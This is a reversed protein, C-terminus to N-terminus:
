GLVEQRVIASDPHVLCRGERDEAFLYIQEPSLTLRVLDQPAIATDEALLVSVYGSADDGSVAADASRIFLVTERGLREVVHVEGALGDTGKSLRVAEPRIGVCVRDGSQLSAAASTRLVLSDAGRGLDVTVNDAAVDKVRAALFNMKPSGLFGAVFRNIPHTYLDMPSGIQEINGGQMVVIKTAMTMAETQDHTVYVMTSGLESHLRSLEVRMQSRLAADLNSLPEDFLFIEPSRTIARGIAARQKQGGSLEKPRKDLQDEMRLIRAARQVAADVEAKPRHRLSLSFAMNERVTMHPYLAYNQFVMAVGRRSPDEASVDRGGIEIGGYTLDELGAIIRLLTSKGCGSPGVLVVFEGREAVFSVGNLAQFPGFQKVVNEVVLAPRNV